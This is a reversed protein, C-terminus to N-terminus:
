FMDFLCSFSFRNKCVQIRTTTGNLVSFETVAFFVQYIFPILLGNIIIFLLLLVCPVSLIISGTCIIKLVHGNVFM